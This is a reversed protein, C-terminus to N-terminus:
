RIVFPKMNYKGSVIQVPLKAMDIEPVHKYSRTVRLLSEHCLHCGPFGLSALALMLIYIVKKIKPGTKMNLHLCELNANNRYIIICNWMGSKTYM